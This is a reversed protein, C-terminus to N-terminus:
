SAQAAKHHTLLQSIYTRFVQPDNQVKKSLEALREAHVVLTVTKLVGDQLNLALLTEGRQPLSGLPVPILQRGANSFLQDANLADTRVMVAFENQLTFPLAAPLPAPVATQPPVQVVPDPLSPPAPPVAATEAAPVPAASSLPVCEEMVPRHEQEDAGSLLAEVPERSTQPLYQTLGPGHLKQDDPLQVGYAEVLEDSHFAGQDTYVKANLVSKVTCRKEAHMFSAGPVLPLHNVWDPRRILTLIQRLPAPIKAIVRALATLQVQLKELGVIDQRSPGNERQHAKEWRQRSLSVLDCFNRLQELAHIEEARVADSELTQMKQAIVKRAAEPDANLLLAVGEADFAAHNIARDNGARLAAIWGAKGMLNTYRLADSSGVALLDHVKVYPALNGQRWGRGNRQTKDEPDHPQDLHIIAATYYQLNFGERIISGGLVHRLEGRAYRAEVKLRKAPTPHSGATVVEIMHRPIGARVYAEVYVNFAGVEADGGRDLFTVTGYGKHHEEAALKAALDARPNPGGIGAAVPDIVAQEMRSLIAFLHNEGKTAPNAADQRYIHYAAEQQPTLPLTHVEQLLAPLPLGIRTDMRCTLADETIVHGKILAELEEFNKFGVVCNRLGVEGDPGTIIRQEIVCYRLMFSLPTDLGYPRLEDTVLSLAYMCEMPSNKWPTATLSYTGRGNQQSRVYRAKHYAALARRSELGAGMFKPVEGLYQPASWLNKMKHAEEFILCDVGLMEWTLDSGTSVRSRDLMNGVESEYTAAQKHGGFRARKDDYGDAQAQKAAAMIAADDEILTLLTDQLMPIAVFTEISIIVLDPPDSMLSALKQQRASGNDETYEPEGFEDFTGTPTMGISVVKWDPRAKQVNTVWNGTLSLPTVLMALRAERRAKLLSLLAIASYTKGLGVAYNLVGHGWAALTRIDRRQYLHLAPGRWQEISMSRTDEPANLVANRARNYRNELEAAYPCTVMWAKWHAELSREYRSARKLAAAEQARVEERSKNQRTVMDRKTAYNLYSEIAQVTGSDLVARDLRTQEPTGHRLRLSVIGGERSVKVAGARESDLHLYADLWAELCENPVVSDRPSLDCNPLSKWQALARTEFDDAQRLLSQAEVGTFAQARIRLADARNYAHGFDADSRRLWRRETPDGSFRYHDLLHAECTAQDEFSIAMLQKVNLLYLDALQEAVDELAGPLLTTRTDTSPPPPPTQVIHLLPFRQALRTLRDGQRGDDYQALQASLADRKPSRLRTLREATLERALLIATQAEPTNAHDAHGWVGHAHRFLKDPSLFGNPLPRTPTRRMVAAAAEEGEVGKRARILSLLATRSVANKLSDRLLSIHTNLTDQTLKMPGTLQPDGYRSFSVEQSSKACVNPSQPYWRDQHKLFTRQGQVWADDWAGLEQLASERESPGLVADGADNVTISTTDSLTKLVTEVGQDHRRLILVATMVGANSAAFAGTPVAIVGVVAARSLLARRRKQYSNERILDEPVILAVLGGPKVRSLSSNLFFWEHRDESQDELGREGRLRGRDGYPPNGIVVDVFADTATTTYTELSMPHICASPNLRQAIQATTDHLEIGILKVGSPATMLFAGIGCSPELATRLPGDHLATVLKWTYAALDTPTYFATLSEGSGGGGSYAMLVARDDDSLGGSPLHQVLEAARENAQQRAPLTTLGREVGLKPLEIQEFPLPLGDANKVNLGASYGPNSSVGYLPATPLAVEQKTTKRTSSSKEAKSSVNTGTSKNNKPPAPRDFM